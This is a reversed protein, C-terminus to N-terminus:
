SSVLAVPHTTKLIITIAVARHNPHGIEVQVVEVEVARVLLLWAMAGSATRSGKLNLKKSTKTRKSRGVPLRQRGNLRAEAKNKERTALHYIAASRQRRASGARAVSAKSRQYVM